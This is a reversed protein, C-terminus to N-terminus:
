SKVGNISGALRSVTSASVGAAKAADDLRNYLGASKQSCASLRSMGGWGVELYALLFNKILGDKNM